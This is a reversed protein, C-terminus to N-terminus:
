FNIIFIECHHSIHSTLRTKSVKMVRCLLHYKFKDKYILAKKIDIDTLNYLNNNYINYINYEQAIIDEHFKHVIFIGLIGDVINLDADPLSFLGSGFIDGSDALMRFEELIVGIREGIGPFIDPLEVFLHFHDINSKIEIKGMLKERRVVINGSRKDEIDAIENKVPDVPIQVDASGQFFHHRFGSGGEIQILDDAEKNKVADKIWTGLQMGDAMQVAVIFPRAKAILM